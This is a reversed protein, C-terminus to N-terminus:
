GTGARWFRGLRRPRCLLFSRASHTSPDTTPAPEDPRVRGLRRPDPHGRRDRRSSTRGTQALWDEAETQDAFTLEPAPVAPVRGTRMAGLLGRPCPLTRPQSPGETSPPARDPFDAWASPDARGRGPPRTGAVARRSRVVWFPSGSRRARPVGAAPRARVDFRLRGARQGFQQVLGRRVARREHHRGPCRSVPSSSRCRRSPRRARRRPASHSRSSPRRPRLASSTSTDASTAERPAPVREAPEEAVLEPHEVRRHGITVRRRAATAPTGSTRRECSSIPLYRPDSSVAPGISTLTAATARGPRCPRLAASSRCSWSVAAPESPRSSSSPTHPPPRGPGLPGGIGNAPRPDHDKAPSWPM